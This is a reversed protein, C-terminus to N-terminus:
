NVIELLEIEFILTSSPPIVYEGKKPDTSVGGVGYALNQPIFVEWKSGVPMKQLVETWGKIVANVGFTAPEGRDYSSDFKHGDILYGNYHVKVVDDYDPVEGNGETVIRYQIQSRNFVRIGESTKNKELFEQGKIKNERSLKATKEGMAKMQNRDLESNKINFARLIEMREPAGLRPENQSWYDNLGEILLDQNIDTEPLNKGINVGMSYSLSDQFTVMLQKDADNSQAGENSCSVIFFTFAMSIWLNNYYKMNKRQSEFNDGM